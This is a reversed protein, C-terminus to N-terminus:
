GNRSSWAPALAQPQSNWNWSQTVKPLCGEVWPRLKGTQLVFSGPSSDRAVGPEQSFEIEYKQCKHAWCKSPNWRFGTSYDMRVLQSELTSLLDLIRNIRADCRETGLKYGRVWKIREGVQSSLYAPISKKDLLYLSPM